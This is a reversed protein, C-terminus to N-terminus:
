RVVRGSQDLTELRVGDHHRVLEMAETVLAPERTHISAVAVTTSEAPAFSDEFASGWGTGRVYTIFAGPILGFATGGLFAGIVVGSWGTVLAVVAAIVLGFAIAGPLAGVVINILTRQGIRRDIAANASPQDTADGLAVYGLAGDADVLREWDVLVARAVEPDETICILNYTTLTPEPDSAVVVEEGPFREVVWERLTMADGAM